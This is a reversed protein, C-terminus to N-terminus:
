GRKRTQRYVIFSLGALKVLNTWKNHPLLALMTPDTLVQWIALGIAVLGSPRKSLTAARTKTEQVVPKIVSDTVDVM